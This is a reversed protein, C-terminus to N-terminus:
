ETSLYAPSNPLESRALAAKLDEIDIETWEAGDYGADRRQGFKL